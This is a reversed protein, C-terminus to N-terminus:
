RDRSNAGIVVSGTAMRALLEGTASKARIAVECTTLRGFHRMPTACRRPADAHRMPM